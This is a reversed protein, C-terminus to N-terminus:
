PTCVGATCTENSACPLDNGCGLSCRCVASKFMYDCGKDTTTYQCSNTNDFAAICEGGFETCLARCTTRNMFKVNFDCSVASSSCFDYVSAGSYQDDCTVGGGGSSSSASSSSASSSSASSSSASSSASSTGASGASSQATASTEASTTIGTTGGAGTAPVGSTVSTAGGGAGESSTSSLGVTDLVCAGLSVGLVGGVALLLSRLSM